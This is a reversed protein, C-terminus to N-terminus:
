QKRFISKLGGLYYIGVLFLYIITGVVVKIIITVIYNTIFPINIVIVYMLVGSIM